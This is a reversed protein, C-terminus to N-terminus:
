GFPSCNTGKELKTELYCQTSREESVADFKGNLQDGAGVTGGSVLVLGFPRRDEEVVELGDDGLPFGEGTQNVPDGPNAVQPLSQELPLRELVEVGLNVSTNPSRQSPHITEREASEVVLANSVRSEDLKSECITADFM